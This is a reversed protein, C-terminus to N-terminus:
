GPRRARASEPSFQGKVSLRQVERSLFERALRLRSRATGLAIGLARAVELGSMQEVEFMVFVERRAEPLRNLLGQASEARRRTESREHLDDRFGALSNIESPETAVERRKPAARRYDSAANICIRYLWTRLSARYEFDPLKTYVVIFVQQSLDPLDQEHVGLGRLACSVYSAYEAYVAEFPQRVPLAPEPEAYSYEPLTERWSGLDETSSYDM